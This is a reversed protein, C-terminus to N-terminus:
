GAKEGTVAKVEALLDGFKGYNVKVGDDLDLSIRQDAYHRLKEDFEALEVQQKHLTAIEKELRKTEAASTSAEKDQELKEAYANLKASLPIVYETRMRALTGENYRHLYVLCEFAKYKGSSFLWYIPRKKYTRLHDEFFQTSLYRRITDLDSEGRKYKIAHLCLGEAVFNLNEQLHEDGWVVRVFERFRNTADDAFWEQDTLPLIADEDPVFSPSPIQHLYDQLNDGQSALIIGPKDLSYRGMMCGITYSVLERLTDCRMLAELEEKSRKGGYRYHANSTLTIDELMVAPELECQLGYANICLQNNEQELTKLDLSVSRWHESQTLWAAEITDFSQSKHVLPNVLFGWSTEYSDWDLKAIDVMKKIIETSEVRIYPIGEVDQKQFNFTPNIVQLFKEGLKSNLISMVNLCCDEAFIGPGADSFLVGKDFYRFSLEGGGVRSWSVFSKFYWKKERLRFDPSRNKINEGDNLFDIVHEANGYWKRFSGGKHLPLWKISPNVEESNKLGFQICTKSVEFWLRLFLEDRGTRIGPCVPFYDSIPKNESFTRSMNPSNWYAIVKGPLPIFDSTSARYFNKTRKERVQQGM